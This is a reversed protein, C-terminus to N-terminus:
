APNVVIGVKSGTITGSVTDSARLSQSGTTKLTVIFTHTGSDGATYTYDVPLAAQPDSSSFHVTGTYGTLVHGANEATLTITHAM